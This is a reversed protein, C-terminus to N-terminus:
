LLNTDNILKHYLATLFWLEVDMSQAIKHVKLIGSVKYM